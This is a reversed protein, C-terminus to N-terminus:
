NSTESSSQEPAATPSVEGAPFSVSDPQSTILSPTASTVDGSQNARTVGQSSPSIPPPLPNVLVKVGAGPIPGATIASGSRGVVVTGEIEPVSSPMPGLTDPQPFSAITPAPGSSPAEGFAADRQGVITVEAIDGSDTLIYNYSSLASQLLRELPVRNVTVSIPANALEDPFQLNIRGTEKLAIHLQQLTARNCSVKFLDRDAKATCTYHPHDEADTAFAPAFAPIALILSQILRGWHSHSFDLM